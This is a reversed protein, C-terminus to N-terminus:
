EESQYLLNKNKWCGSNWRLFMFVARTCEDLAMAAYAGVALWGFHIGFLWTGGAACVFAFVVAIVMPYVADGSTKLASGYVLNTMRGIELAIDVILLKSVLHIMDPDSTFIRLLPRAFAALVGACGAGLFIGVLATKRTERDCAEIQGAGIHWGALIANAQSLAAGASLSVNSIQVAYARATAQMGTSDMSNLLSIVITIALNYLSTEMAAPLGVQIIKRLLERNAPAANDSVPEIRHRSVLWLWVLHIVRSFGTALAVGFVGWHFVLLFLVNLVANAVNSLITASLTPTTHGFARLYSSYIPILANCVCFLGVTKLYTTAPQLLQQAIGIAGLISGAFCFLVGSIVIGVALNFLLGLRMARQAVGPRRAGIYQTMVAIMGSSIISFMIVFISIYTNATGVAGVAQDGEMSLMLTDVMGTLMAFFNEFFIPFFLQPLSKKYETM